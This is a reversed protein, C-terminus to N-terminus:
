PFHFGLRDALWQLRDAEGAFQLDRHNTDYWSIQKRGNVTDFYQNADDLTIYEDTTSFQFLFDAQSHGVFHVADLDSDDPSEIQSIQSSGGILVFAKIRPEVGALVGGWTGGFSHGVFGIRLPDVTELTELLDVARRLEIVTNIYGQRMEEYDVCGRRFPSDLLISVVELNALQKAENLYQTKNASGMHLFIVAPYLGDGQPILVFARVKCDDAGIYYIPDLIFNDELTQNGWIVGLDAFHDYDFIRALTEFKPDPTFTPEPTKTPQPTHTPPPNTPLHTDLPALHETQPACGSLGLLFIVLILILARM